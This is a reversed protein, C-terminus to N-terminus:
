EAAMEEDTGGRGESPHRGERADPVVEGDIFIVLGDVVVDPRDM